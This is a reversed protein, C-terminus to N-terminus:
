APLVGLCCLRIKKKLWCPGPTSASITDSRRGPSVPGGYLKLFFSLSNVFLTLFTKIAARDPGAQREPVQRIALM